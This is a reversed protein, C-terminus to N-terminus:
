RSIFMWADKYSNSQRMDSLYKEAQTKDTFKAAYIRIKGDREVIGAQAFRNKDMRSVFKNAQNISPLSAIVIHYYKANAAPTEHVAPSSEAKTSTTVVKLAPTVAPQDSAADIEENGPSVTQEAVIPSSVSIDPRMYIVDTPIFSATYSAQNVNKVPTSILLFLAVAAASAVVTRFLTTNVPIYFIDKRKPKSEETAVSKNKTNKLSELTPFRFTDLGYSSISFPASSSPTFIVKGEEGPYFSGIGGLPIRTKKQLAQKLMETDEDLMCQAKGFDAEYLKMYSEILLGDNHQLTPNFVIEKKAPSFSHDERGYVAPLKQLVFGGVKPIIVCDHILLLREIHIMIRLM